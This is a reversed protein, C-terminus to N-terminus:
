TGGPRGVPKVVELNLGLRQLNRTIFARCALEHKLAPHERMGTKTMIVVGDREIQANLEQQRDRTSCIQLLVEVCGSESIDYESMIADYLARGHEGFKRPLQTTSASVLKLTPKSPKKL